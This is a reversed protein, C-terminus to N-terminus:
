QLPETFTRRSDITAPQLHVNRAKTLLHLIVELQNPLYINTASYIPTYRRGCRANFHLTAM